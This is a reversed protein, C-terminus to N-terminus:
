RSVRVNPNALGSPIHLANAFCCWFFKAWFPLHLSILFLKECIYKLDQHLWMGLCLIFIYWIQNPRDLLQCNKLLCVRWPRQGSRIKQWGKQLKRYARRPEATVHFVLSFPRLLARFRSCLTSWWLMKPAFTSCNERKGRIQGTFNYHPAKQIEMKHCAISDQSWGPMGLMDETSWSVTRCAFSSFWAFFFVCWEFYFLIACYLYPACRSACRMALSSWIWHCNRFACCTLNQWDLLPARCFLWWKRANRIALWIWPLSDKAALKVDFALVARTSLLGRVKRFWYSLATDIYTSFNFARLSFRSELPFETPDSPESWVCECIRNSSRQPELGSLDEAETRARAELLLEIIKVPESLESAALHLPTRGWRGRFAQSFLM